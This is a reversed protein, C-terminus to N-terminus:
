EKYSFLFRNRVEEAATSLYSCLKKHQKWDLKQHEKSCYFMCSCRACRKLPENKSGAHKCVMCCGWYYKPATLLEEEM